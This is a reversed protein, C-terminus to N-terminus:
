LLAGKTFIGLAVAPIAAGTGIRPKPVHFDSAPRTQNSQARIMSGMKKAAFAQPSFGIVHASPHLPAQPWWAALYGM